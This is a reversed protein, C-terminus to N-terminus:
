RKMKLLYNVKCVYVREKCAASQLKDYIIKNGFIYLFYNEIEPRFFLSDILFLILELLFFETM